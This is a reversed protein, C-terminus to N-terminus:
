GISVRPQPGSRTTLRAFLMGAILGVAMQVALGIPGRAGFIGVTGLAMRAVTFLAFIASAGAVGFVLVRHGSLRAVAGATLFAVLLAISTMGGYQPMMGGLDHVVWSMRDAIPISVTATGEALGAAMSWAAQVFFSHAASGLVVMATVAIVFAIIRRLM